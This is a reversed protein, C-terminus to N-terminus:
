RDGFQPPLEYSRAKQGLFFNTEGITGAYGDPHSKARTVQDPTIGRAILSEESDVVMQLDHNYDM